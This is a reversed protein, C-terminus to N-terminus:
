SRRGFQCWDRRLVQGTRRGRRRAVVVVVVDGWEVEDFFEAKVGGDSVGEVAIWDVSQGTGVSLLWGVEVGEVSVCGWVAAVVVVGGFVVGVEVSAKVADDGLLPSM